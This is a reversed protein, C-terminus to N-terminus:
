VTVKAVIFRMSIECRRTADCSSEHGDTAFHNRTLLRRRKSQVSEAEPRHAILDIGDGCIRTACQLGIEASGGGAFQFDIKRSAGLRRARHGIELGLPAGLL